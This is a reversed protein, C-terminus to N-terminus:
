AGAEASRLAYTAAGWRGAASARTLVMGVARTNVMRLLAAAVHQRGRGHPDILKRVDESLDAARVPYSGHQEFWAGFIDAVRGRKPDEQKAALLFEVPDACGLTLLPDRVWEAWVEFSGLPRGRTLRDANQRGWRWITLAASLLPARRELVAEVFGAKFPRAEPDECAPDLEVILFRRALDESVTLGNGTLAIFPACNLPMSRSAGLARVRAPRETLVSALTDSRLAAGNVNDLFLAPSADVLETVLRKDLEQRDHGATIAAPRTGYAIACAARVLLGKGSGAGSVEPASVLLGPALWLSARCCATIVGALFSTEAAGPPTTADVLELPGETRRVSGAFPFTQFARRLRALAAAADARSPRTPVSLAPPPVAYFGTAADYGEVARIGGDAALLPATTIGALAPLGYDGSDLWMEACRNPLTVPVLAKEDDSWAVPRCARHAEVVVTHKTLPRAMLPAEGADTPRSLRVALGGREYLGEADRLIDGLAAATAPLDSAIVQLEPLSAPAAPRSTVARSPKTWGHHHEAALAFLTGAGIRTPPSQRYHQWREKCAGPDHAPHRKAWALWAAFGASDGGTAAFTAMGIKNFHEWDAAGSNPIVALAAAVDLNDSAALHAASPEPTADPIGIDDAGSAATSPEAVIVRQAAALFTDVQSVTVVPVAGLSLTNPAEPAWVLAAGSPHLGFAHLQQGHGLVEVKGLEGAVSRKKPSGEAARYILACRATNARTRVLDTEGLLEIAKARIAAVSAADEIDIDIIRLGDALLGTNLAEPRPAEVADAPPDRRARATWARATPVKDGTRLAVPRWGGDALEARLAAVAALAAVASQEANKPQNEQASGPINSDM